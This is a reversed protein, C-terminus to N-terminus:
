SCYLSKNSAHDSKQTSGFAGLRQATADRALEEGILDASKPADPSGEREIVNPNTRSPPLQFSKDTPKIRSSM